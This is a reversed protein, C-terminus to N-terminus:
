FIGKTLKQFWEQVTMWITHREVDEGAILDVSGKKEGDSYCVVKGIVDGKKIPAEVEAPIEIKKEIKELSKKFKKIEKNGEGM